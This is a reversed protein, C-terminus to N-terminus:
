CLIVFFVLLLCLFWAAATGQFSLSNTPVFIDSITQPQQINTETVLLIYFLFYHVYLLWMQFPNSFFLLYSHILSM